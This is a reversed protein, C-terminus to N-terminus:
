LTAGRAPLTPQFASAATQWWDVTNDSGTRPAHTSIPTLGHWLGRWSDSGTRPAHTSIAKLTEALHAWTHREGHPSRPNFDQGDTCCEQFFSTAGRAPLTPQFQIGNAPFLINFTAGRAPLTPQFKDVAVSPIGVRTAGRAPLTPQFAQVFNPLQQTYLREGHPSRPNFDEIFFGSALYTITAGRAPLTPQFVKDGGNAQRKASTAGRAPLTPQFAGSASFSRSPMADSGTRPAHTSIELFGMQGDLPKQREGHPSRPNFHRRTRFPTSTAKWTAGRAPLTPQFKWRRGCNYHLM